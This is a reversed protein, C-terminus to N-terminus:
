KLSFWLMLLTTVLENTRVAITGKNLFRYKNDLEILKYASRCRYNDRKTQSVLPDQFLFLICYIIDYNVILIDRLFNM